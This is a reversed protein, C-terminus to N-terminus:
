LTVFLSLTIDNKLALKCTDFDTVEKLTNFKTLDKPKVKELM